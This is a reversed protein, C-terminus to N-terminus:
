LTCYHKREWQELPVDPTRTNSTMQKHTVSHFLTVIQSKYDLCRMCTNHQTSCIIDTNTLGRGRLLCSSDAVIHVASVPSLEINQNLFSIQCDTICVSHKKRTKHSPHFIDEPLLPGLCLLNGITLWTPGLQYRRCGLGTSLLSFFLFYWMSIM